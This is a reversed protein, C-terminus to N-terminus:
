EKEGMKLIELQLNGLLDWKDMGPEWGDLCDIGFHSDMYNVYPGDWKSDLIAECAEKGDELENILRYTIMDMLHYMIDNFCIKDCGHDEIVDYVLNEDFLENGMDMVCVLKDIDMYGCGLLAIILEEKGDIM